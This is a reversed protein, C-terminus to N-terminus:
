DDFAVRTALLTKEGVLLGRIFLTKRVRVDRCSGDEFATDLDTKVTYGAM